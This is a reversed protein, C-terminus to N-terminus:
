KDSLLKLADKDTRNAYDHRDVRRAAEGSSIGPFCSDVDGGNDVDDEVIKRSAWPASAGAM